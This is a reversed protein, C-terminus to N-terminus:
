QVRMGHHQIIRDIEGLAFQGLQQQLTIAVPDTEELDGIVVINEDNLATAPATYNFSGSIIVQGDIVMLKHHLKRLGGGSRTLYLEVGNSTLPRTAAWHHNAQRRDLVGRVPIQGRQLAIMTDDIGSSKSFTFVAFDVRQQAKLMQKMIEMEPAHDPAFLVKVWVKSVRYERPKPDHRERKEGFTGSWLEDFERRYVAASRKGRIVVVHNLNAGTGTPTFNTSGTLVAARSSTEWDKVIFKQHFIKPNLDTIVPVKARLLAAYMERNTQNQGGPTWPDASPVNVTLYDRELVVRVSVGQTRAKLIAETIPKSELEQVAIDLTDRARGIFRVVEDELDDPAGLNKPGMYLEISGINIAM